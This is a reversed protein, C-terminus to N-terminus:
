HQVQVTLHEMSGSLIGPNSHTLVESYVIAAVILVGLIVAWLRLRQINQPKQDHHSM